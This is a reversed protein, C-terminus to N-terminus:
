LMPAFFDAIQTVAAIFEAGTSIGKLAALIPRVVKGKPAGSVLEEKLTEASDSVLERQEADLKQALHLLNSLLSDLESRMLGNNQTAILFSKGGATSVQANPSNNVNVIQSQHEDLGMELGIQTLYREVHEILIYAVRDLFGKLMDQYLKSGNAYGTFFLGRASIKHKHMAQLILYIEATEEEDSGGFPGFITGYGNRVADIEGDVDFEKPLDNAVCEDIHDKILPTNEIYSLFKSLEEQFCDFQARMLRSAQGHFGNLVKKLEVKDNM